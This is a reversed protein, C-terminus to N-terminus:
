AVVMRPDIDVQMQSLTDGAIRISRRDDILGLAMRPERNLSVNQAVTLSPVLSLEQFIMAIGAAKADRSSGFRVPRGEIEITGEDPTYVGTLIKMLTSKGAGNGGLLAHIEGQRLEFSVHDLVRVSGFAKTIEKMSAALNPEDGELKAVLGPRGM